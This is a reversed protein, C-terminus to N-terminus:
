WKRFEKYPLLEREHTNFMRWVSPAFILKRSFKVFFYREIIEGSDKNIDIRKRITKRSICFPIFSKKLLYYRTALKRLKIDMDKFDQSFIAIDINYHRHKKFFSVEEDTFKKYNRNNYEIGAEDLIMLGDSIDFRGIDNKEIAYCGKIEVNSYVKTCRKLRKKSLYAAFTTKGCGPVGFYIDFTNGPKFFFMELIFAIIYIAFLIEIIIM